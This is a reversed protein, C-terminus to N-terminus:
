RADALAKEFLESVALEKAWQRLYDLDLEAASAGIMGLVDRWQTESVDGGARYWRLKALIMDEVTSVYVQQDIDPAIRRLERRALQQMAFDGPKPIFIDVKFVSDLHIANFSQQQSVAQAAAQEAVQFRDQLAELLPRVQEPKIDAILDIDATARYMGHMSSAISGVLVYSIGREELLQVVESLATFPSEM